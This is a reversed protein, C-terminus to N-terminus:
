GAVPTPHNSRSAAPGGLVVLATVVWLRGDASALLDGLDVPPPVTALGLDDGDAAYLRVRVGLASSSWRWTV